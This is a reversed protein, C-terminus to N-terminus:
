NRGSSTRKRGPPWSWRCGCRRGRRLPRWQSEAPVGGAKFPSRGHEVHENYVIFGQDPGADAMRHGPGVVLHLHGGFGGADLLGDVDDVTGLADVHDEGINDHGTWVTQLEQAPEPIVVRENRRHNQAVVVFKGVNLVGQAQAHGIVDDFGLQVVRLGDLGHVGDLFFGQPVLLVALLQFVGGPGPLKDAGHGHHAGLTPLESEEGLVQFGGAGM